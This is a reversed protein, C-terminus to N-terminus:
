PMFNEPDQNYKELNQRFTESSINLFAAASELPIIGQNVMMFSTQYKGKEIGRKEGKVIGRKEGIEIGQKIGKELNEKEFMKMVAEEYYDTICM